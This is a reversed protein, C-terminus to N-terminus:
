YNCLTPWSVTNCNIIFDGKLELFDNLNEPGFCVWLDYGM